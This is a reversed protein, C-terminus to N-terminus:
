DRLVFSRFSPVCPKQGYGPPSWSPTAVQNRNVHSKVQLHGQRTAAQDRPVRPLEHRPGRLEDTRGGYRQTHFIKNLVLSPQCANTSAHLAPKQRKM